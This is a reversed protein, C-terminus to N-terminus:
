LGSAVPASRILTGNALRVLWLMGIDESSPGRYTTTRPAIFDRSAPLDQFYEFDLQGVPAQNLSLAISKVVDTELDIRYVLRMQGYVVTVQVDRSDPVMATQFPAQREAADRRITDITHLGMWPRSLGKFFGGRAYRSLVTSRADLVCAGTDSDTLTLDGVQLKLWPGHNRVMSYIFPLQGVGTVTRGNLQGTVRFYTWGRKHMADRSDVITADSRWNSQFYDETLVNGYRIAWPQTDEGDASREAVVLLGRGRADVPQIEPDKGQMRSLFTRMASSDTPLSCVNNLDSMWM